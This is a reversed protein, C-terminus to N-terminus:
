RERFDEGTPMNHRRMEDITYVGNCSLVGQMYGLWRMFKERQASLRKLTDTFNRIDSWRSPDLHEQSIKQCDDLMARMKPIMELLHTLDRDSVRRFRKQFDPIEQEYLALVERCKAVTM